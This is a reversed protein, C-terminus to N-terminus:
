LSWLLYLLGIIVIWMACGLAITKGPPRYVPTM